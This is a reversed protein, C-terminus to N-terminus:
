YTAPRGSTRVEIGTAGYGARRVARARSSGDRTASAVAAVDTVDTVESVATVESVESVESVDTVDTVDTVETVAAGAARPEPAVRPTLPYSGVDPLGDV